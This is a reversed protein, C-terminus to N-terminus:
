SIRSSARRRRLGALAILLLLSTLMGQQGGSQCGCGTPQEAPWCVGDSANQAICTYGSPCTEETPTAFCSVSCVGRETDMPCLGSVCEEGSVCSDGLEGSAPPFFCRGDECSQGEQCSNKDICAQGKQVTLRVVTETGIDNQGRIEVDIIGDSLDSPAEFVYPAGALDLSHGDLKGYSSNNLFLEVSDIGRVHTVTTSVRFGAEVSDGDAPYQLGMVPGDLAEPSEGLVSTLWRHSNQASGGCQCQALDEYEGCRTTRDRFFQRSCTPMYTMPDSCDRAHELGYSHATEQGVTHCIAIPNDGYTNAFTFSIVNNAPMCQSPALGGVPTPYGIQEYSGAVIAEHHFVNGGPDVDTIEIDYPAYLEKVCAVLEQWSEDSYRWEAVLSSQSVIRSTNLRADNAGPTITCGGECRNLFLIKSVHESLIDFGPRPPVRVSLGSEDVRTNVDAVASGASLLFPSLLAFFLLRISMEAVM